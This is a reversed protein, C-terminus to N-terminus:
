GAIGHHVGLTCMPWTRSFMTKHSRALNSLLAQLPAPDDEFLQRSQNALYQDVLATIEESQGYEEALRALVEKTNFSRCYYSTVSRMGSVKGIQSEVAQAEVTIPAAQKAESERRIAAAKQANAIASNIKASSMLRAVAKPIDTYGAEKAARGVADPSLSALGRSAIITVYRQERESLVNSSAELALAAAEAQAAEQERRAREQAEAERRLRDAEEQERRQQERVYSTDVREAIAIAQDIPALHQKELDLVTNRAVNIPDKIRKYHDVIERKLAKAGKLFTRCAEHSARDTITIEQAQHLLSVAEAAKPTPELTVSLASTKTKAM